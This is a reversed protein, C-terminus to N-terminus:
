AKTADPFTEKAIASMRHGCKDCHGSLLRRPQNANPGSWITQQSKITFTTKRRCHLCSGVAKTPTTM